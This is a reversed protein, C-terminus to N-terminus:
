PPYRSVFVDFSGDSALITEAVTKPFFTAGASFFGSVAAGGDSMLGVSLGSDAGVGGARVISVLSGLADIRALFADAFGASPLMTETTEGAGFTVTGAFTGTVFAGGDPLPAVAYGIDQLPGGHRRAWDLTGDSQYRAVFVDFDGASALSAENPEGLGFTASGHFGGTVLVSGDPFAEVDLAVDDLAGGASRAWALGGFADYRAVLIDNPGAATLTTQNTEGAGLTIATSFDGAMWTSGDPLVGVAIARDEDLGGAGRVWAFDGSPAFGAVFLDRSGSNPLVTEGDEGAGFTTEGEYWGVVRASGDPLAAVNYAATSHGGDQRVWDLTGSADYRALFIDFDPATLTTEGPEGPSFTATRFWGAVLAGGDDLAAVGGAMTSGPGVIARAWLLSGSPSYRAVFGDQIGPESALLVTEGEEGAGFTADAEYIGTVLVTDDAAVVSHYATDFASGGARRVWAGGCSEDTEADCDDDLDNECVDESAPAVGGECPGFVGATCTQAGFECAGVDTGCARTEDDVCAVGADGSAASQGGCAGLLGVGLLTVRGWMTMARDTDAAARSGRQPRRVPPIFSTEVDHNV